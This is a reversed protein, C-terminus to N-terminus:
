RTSTGAIEAMAELQEIYHQPSHHRFGLNVMTAGAAELKALAAAAAEPEDDPALLRGTAMVVDFPPLDTSAQRREWAETDRARELM